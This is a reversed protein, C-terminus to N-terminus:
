LELLYVFLHIFPADLRGRLQLLSFLINYKEYVLERAKLCFIERIQLM